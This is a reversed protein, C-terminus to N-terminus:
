RKSTNTTHYADILKVRFTENQTHVVERGDLTHAKIIGSRIGPKLYHEIFWQPTIGAIKALAEIRSKEEYYTKRM